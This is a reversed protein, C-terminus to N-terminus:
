KPLRLSACVAGWLIDEFAASLTGDGAARQPTACGTRIRTKTREVPLADASSYQEM